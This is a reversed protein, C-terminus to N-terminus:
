RAAPTTHASTSGATASSRRQRPPLGRPSRFGFPDILDLNTLYPM